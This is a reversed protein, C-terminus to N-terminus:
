TSQVLTETLYAAQTTSIVTRVPTALNYLMICNPLIIYFGMSWGSKLTLGEEASTFTFPQNGITVTNNGSNTINLLLPLDGPMTGNTKTFIVYNDSGNWDSQLGNINIKTLVIDTPGTDTIAIAAISTTSNVYWVHSSAVFLSEKQAQSTTVNVAFVVVVSSLIVAAMLLILSAVPTGLARKNRFLKKM